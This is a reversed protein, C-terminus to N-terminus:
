EADEVFLYPKVRKFDEKNLVNFEMLQEIRDFKGSLERYKMISSTQYKNLYPHRLLTKFKVKNINIPSILTTDVSIIFKIKNYRATDMGYVELLQEKRYYGKLLNRYKIIKNAFSEGIGPLEVLDEILASNLEVLKVEEDFVEKVKQKKEEKISISIYPELEKYFDKEIGYIKLLDENEYFVGGKNRYKMLSKIQFDNFGLKKLEKKSAINPDFKSLVVVPKFKEPSEKKSNTNIDKKLVLSKEFLEVEKKFQENNLNVNGYTQNSIYTKVIILGFLIFLLVITGNREKKTFNFYEKFRQKLM